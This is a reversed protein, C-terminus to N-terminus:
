KISVNAEVDFVNDFRFVGDALLTGSAPPYIKTVGAYFARTSHKDVVYFINEKIAGAAWMSLYESLTVYMMSGGSGVVANARDAADNANDAATNAKSIAAVTANTASNATAAANNANSAAANASTTATDAEKVAKNVEEIAKYADEAAKKAPESLLDIPVEVVNNGDKLAPLSEIGDLSTVVPLEGVGQSEALLAAKVLRVIEDINYDAM